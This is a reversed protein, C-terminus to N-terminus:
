RLKVVGAFVLAAIAVVMVALVTLARKRRVARWALYGKEDLYYGTGAQRVAGASVMRRLRAPGMPGPPDFEVAHTASTAGAARLRRVIKRDTALIVAALLAPFQSAIGALAM